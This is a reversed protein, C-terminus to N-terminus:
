VKMMLAFFVDKPMLLFQPFTNLVLPWDLLLFLFPESYLFLYHGEGLEHPRMAGTRPHPKRHAAGPKEGGYL